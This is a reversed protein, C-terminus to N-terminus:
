ELARGYLLIVGGVLALGLGYVLPRALAAGTITPSVLVAVGALVVAQGLRVFRVSDRNAPPPPRPADTM